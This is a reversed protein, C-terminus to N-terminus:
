LDVTLAYRCYADSTLEVLHDGARRIQLSVHLVGDTDTLSFLDQGMNDYVSAESCTPEHVTLVFDTGSARREDLLVQFRATAAGTTRVVFQRSGPLTGAL